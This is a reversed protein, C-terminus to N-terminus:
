DIKKLILCAAFYTAVLVYFKVIFNEFLFYNLSFNFINGILCFILALLMSIFSIRKIINQHFHAILIWESQNLIQCIIAATLWFLGFYFDGFDPMVIHFLSNLFPMLYILCILSITGILLVLQLIILITNRSSKPSVLRPLTVAGAHQYVAAHILNAATFLNLIFGYKGSEALGLTAVVFWREINQQLVSNAGQILLAFGDKRMASEREILQFLFIKRFKNRFNFCAVTIISLIGLLEGLLAGNLGILLSLVVSLIFTVTNKIFIIQGFVEIKRASRAVIIPITMLTTAIGLLSSYIYDPLNFFVFFIIFIATIIIGRILIAYFCSILELAITDTEENLFLRPLNVALGEVAGLGIFCQFVTSLVIILGYKGFESLGLIKILVFSKSIGILGGIVMYVYYSVAKTM